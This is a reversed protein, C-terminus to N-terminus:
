DDGEGWLFFDPPLKIDLGDDKKRSILKKLDIDLPHPKGTVRSIIFGAFDNIIFSESPKFRFDFVQHSDPLLLLFELTKETLFKHPLGALVYTSNNFALSNCLDKFGWTVEGFVSLSYSSILSELEKKLITTDWPGGLELSPKILFTIEGLTDLSASSTFLSAFAPYIVPNIRIVSKRGSGERVVVPENPSKFLSRIHWGRIFFLTNYKCGTHSLLFACILLPFRINKPSVRRVHRVFGKWHVAPVFSATPFLLKDKTAKNRKLLYGPM